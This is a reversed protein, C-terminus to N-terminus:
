ASKENISQPRHNHCVFYRVATLLGNRLHALRKHCVELNDPDYWEPSLYGRRNLEIQIWPLNKSHQKVIIPLKGAMKKRLWNYLSTTSPFCLFLLNVMQTVYIFVLVVLDCLILITSLECGDTHAVHKPNHLSFLYKWM